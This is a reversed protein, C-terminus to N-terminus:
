KLKWPDVRFGKEVVRQRVGVLVNRLQSEDRLNRLVLDTVEVIGRDKDDFVKFRLKSSYDRVEAVCRLPRFAAEVIAKIEDDTRM